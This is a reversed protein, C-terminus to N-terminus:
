WTVPCTGPCCWWMCHSMVHRCQHQYTSFFTREAVALLSLSNVGVGACVANIYLNLVNAGIRRMRVACSIWMGRWADLARALYYLSCYYPLHGGSQSQTSKVIKSTRHGRNKKRHTTKEASKRRKAFFHFFDISYFKSYKAFREM